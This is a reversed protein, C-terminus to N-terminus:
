PITAVRRRRGFLFFVVIGLIAIALLIALILSPEEGAGIMIPFPGVLLLLGGSGRGSLASALIMLLMGVFIM